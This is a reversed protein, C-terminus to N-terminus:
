EDPEGRIEINNLKNLYARLPSEDEIEERKLIACLKAVIDSYRSIKSNYAKSAPTEEQKNQNQPHVRFHPLGRLVKLEYELFVMDEILRHIVTTIEGSSQFCGLLESKRETNM